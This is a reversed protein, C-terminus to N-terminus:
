SVGWSANFFISLQNGNAATVLVTGQENGDGAFPTLALVRATRADIQSGSCHPSTGSFSFNTDVSSTITAYDQSGYGHVSISVKDASLTYNSRGYFSAFSLPGGSPAGGRGYFAAPFPAQRSIGFEDAIQGLSIPGSGPLTM